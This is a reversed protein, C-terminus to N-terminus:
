PLRMVPVIFLGALALGVQHGARGLIRALIRATTDTDGTGAVAVIPVQVPRNSPFLMEMIAKLVHEPKNVGTWLNM